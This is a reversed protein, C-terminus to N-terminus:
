GIMSEARDAELLAANFRKLLGAFAERETENWDALIRGLRGQRAARMDAVSAAGSPTLGVLVSRRDRPNPRRDAFGLEEVAAVQRVVTSHDLGLAEAIEGTSKEGEELRGLLLYHAREMPYGRKRYNMELRRVLFALEPELRSIAEEPLDAM